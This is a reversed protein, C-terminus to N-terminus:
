APLTTAYASTKTSCDNRKRIIESLGLMSTSVSYIALFRVFRAKWRYTQRVSIDHLKWMRIPFMACDAIWHCKGNYFHPFGWFRGRGKARHLGWRICCRMPGGCAGGWVEAGVTSASDCVSATFDGNTVIARGLNAGFTARGMSRDGFGVVQRMVPGTRGIVGFPMRIRDATKWLASSLGVSRSVSLDDVSFNSSMLRQAVLAARGLVRKARM